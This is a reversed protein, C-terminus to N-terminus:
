PAKPPAREAPKDSSESPKESRPFGENPEQGADGHKGENAPRDVYKTPEEELDLGGSRQTPSASKESM